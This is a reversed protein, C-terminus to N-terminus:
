IGATTTWRRGCASCHWKNVVADPSYNSSYPATISEGCHCTDTGEPRSRRVPAERAVRSAWNREFKRHFHIPYIIENM